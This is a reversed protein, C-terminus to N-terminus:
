AASWSTGNFVMLGSGSVWKIWGDFPAFRYWTGSRWLVVDHEDFGSWVGTPSPGIIYVTGDTPSGPPTNSISVAGRALVETRLFADNVPTSPQTTGQIWVPLPFIDSM